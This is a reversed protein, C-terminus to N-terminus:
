RMSHPSGDGSQALGTACHRAALISIVPGDIPETKDVRGALPSRSHRTSVVFAALLRQRAEGHEIEVLKALLPVTEVFGTSGRTEAAFQQHSRDGVAQLFQSEAPEARLRLASQALDCDLQLLGSGGLCAEARPGRGTRPQDALPPTSTALDHDEIVAEAPLARM